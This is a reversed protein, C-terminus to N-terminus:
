AIAEAADITEAIFARQVPADLEAAVVKEATAVVLSGIEAAIEQRARQRELDAEAAANAIIREFEERGHREGELRLQASTEHAREVIATAQEHARALEQRAAALEASAAEVAEDASSLTASITAAQRDMLRRLPPAVYRGIFALLLLFGVVEAIYGAM